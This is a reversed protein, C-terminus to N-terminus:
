GVLVRVTASVSPVGAYDVAFLMWIGPLTIGPDGPLALSYRYHGAMGSVPNPTLPIRRQDTNLSHHRDQPLLCPWNPNSNLLPTLACILIPDTGDSVPRNTLGRGMM